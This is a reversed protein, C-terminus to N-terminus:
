LKNFRENSENLVKISIKKLYKARFFYQYSFYILYRASLQFDNIKESNFFGKLYTITEFFKYFDFNILNEDLSKKFQEFEYESYYIPEKYKLRRAYSCCISIFADRNQTVGGLENSIQDIHKRIYTISNNCCVLHTKESMRLWLDHDEARKIEKRYMGLEEVFSKKYIVSSHPPFKKLSLLNNRLNKNRGPYKYTKITKGNSDIEIMSGSIFKLGHTKTIIEVQNRIKHAHWIDDVDIRAIWESSCKQIGVNLSDALGTNNKDIFNIRPDADSFAKIIDLSKDTSGDNVIIFEDIPHSQNLVSRIAEEIWQEGNFCSMLVSISPNNNINLDKM